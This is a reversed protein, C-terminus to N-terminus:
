LRGSGDPNMMGPGGHPGDHRGRGHHSGGDHRDRMREHMGWAPAADRAEDKTVKGDDNKDFVAFRKLFPKEAEAKTVKGDGDIDFRRIMADARDASRRGMWSELEAKDITGNKDADVDAFRALPRSLAEETTVTGDSNTDFRDFMREVGREGGRGGHHGDGIMGMRGQDALAVGGGALLALTGVGLAVKTWTKM